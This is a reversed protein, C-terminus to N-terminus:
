NKSAEEIERLEEKMKKLENNLRVIKDRTLKKEQRFEELTIEGSILKSHQILQDQFFEKREDNNNRFIFRIRKM